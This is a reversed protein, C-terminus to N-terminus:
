RNGKRRAVRMELWQQNRLALEKRRALDDTLDYTVKDFTENPDTANMHDNYWTMM